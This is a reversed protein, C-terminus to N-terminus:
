LEVGSPILSEARLLSGDSEYVLFTRKQYTAIPDPHDGDGVIEVRYRGEDPDAAASEGYARAARVFSFIVEVPQNAELVFDGTVRNTVALVGRRPDSADAGDGDADVIRFSVDTEDARLPGDEGHLRRRLEDVPGSFDIRLSPKTPEDDAGGADRVDLEFYDRRM